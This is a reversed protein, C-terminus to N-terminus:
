RHGSFRGPDCWTTPMSMRGRGGVREVDDCAPLDAADVDIVADLEVAVEVAHRVLEDGLLDLDAVGGRGDLDEELAAVHAEWGRRRSRPTDVVASCM